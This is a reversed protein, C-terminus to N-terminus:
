ALDVVETSDNKRCLEPLGEVNALTVLDLDGDLLVPDDQGLAPRSAGEAALSVSQPREAFM